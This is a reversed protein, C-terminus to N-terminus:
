PRKIGSAEFLVDVEAIHLELLYDLDPILERCSVLGFDLTDLYSQVTINLGVGEAVTSVPYFRKMKAGAMYLPRRPGPVNSIVVNVPATGRDGLRLSAAVRSAQVAVAPLTLQAADVLTDAPLMDFQSKAAMMSQHVSMVRELPDEINTPLNSVLGSVRNTWPDAEEGTRVSVPVMARLPAEPLADHTLLYNRLAGASIAMVVDNVTAGIGSKLAKIEALPMSGMALRRHPSISKNFPTPPASIRIGGGSGNQDSEDDNSGGLVTPLQRRGAGIMSALGSARAAEALQQMTRLQIRAARGPTKVYNIAARGILDLAGPNPEARWSGDDLPIEDGDPESDLITTLMEVGSSGDITAHHVKTLIAFDNDPLGELVYAEWLPRSRDLPRGIIRAVQEALQVMDGPPPIAIHRVHFGLDFDPDNVWYPHDLSLPVEVLKRRFPELLHLRSEMQERFATYPNFDPDPRQYVVLSSVHGFSSPTEMYLFNADIGTLQKM